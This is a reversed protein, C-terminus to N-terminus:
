QLHGDVLTLVCSEPALSYYHKEVEVTAAYANHDFFTQWGMRLDEDTLINQAVYRIGGNSAKTWLNLSGYHNKLGKNLNELLKQLKRSFLFILYSRLVRQHRKSVVVPSKGDNSAKIKLILDQLEPNPM